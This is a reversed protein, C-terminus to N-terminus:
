ESAEKGASVNLILAVCDKPVVTDLLTPAALTTLKAIVPVSSAATIPVGLTAATKSSVVPGPILRTLPFKIAVPEILIVSRSRLWALKLVALLATVLTPVGNPLRTSALM